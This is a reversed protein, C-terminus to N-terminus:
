REKQYQGIKDKRWIKAYRLIPYKEDIMNNYNQMDSTTKASKAELAETILVVQDYMNLFDKKIRDNATEDFGDKYIMKRLMNYKEECIRKKNVTQDESM